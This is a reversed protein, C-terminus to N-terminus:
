ASVTEVTKILKVGDSRGVTFNITNKLKNGDKSEESSDLHVILQMIYTTKTTGVTRTLAVELYKEEGAIASNSLERAVDGAKWIDFSGTVEFDGLSQEISESEFLADTAEMNNNITLSFDSSQRLQTLSDFSDGYKIYGELTKFSKTTLADGYSVHSFASLPDTTTSKPHNAGMVSWTLNAFDNLALAIQLQNIQENKFHQYEVPAQTYKKILSFTNRSTGLALTKYSTYATHESSEDTWADQCMVAAFLDDQEDINWETTIDGSNSETGTEPISKIRSDPIVVDSEIQEISGTVGCDSYRLPKISVPSEETGDAIEGNTEKQM